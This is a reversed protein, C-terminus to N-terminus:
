DKVEIRKFKKSLPDIINDEFLKIKTAKDKSFWGFDDESKGNILYLSLKVPVHKDYEREDLELYYTLKEGDKFIRVTNIKSRGHVSDQHSIYISKDSITQLENKLNEVTTNFEYEKMEDPGSPGPRHFYIYILGYFLLKNFIYGVIFIIMLYKLIKRIVSEDINKENSNKL